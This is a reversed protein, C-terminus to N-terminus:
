HNLEEIFVEGFATLQKPTNKKGDKIFGGNTAINFASDEVWYGKLLHGLIEGLFVRKKYRSKNIREGFDKGIFLKSIFEDTIKM